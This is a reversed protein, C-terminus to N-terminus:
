LRRLRKVPLGQADACGYQCQECTATEVGPESLTWQIVAEQWSAAYAPHADLFYRDNKLQERCLQTCFELHVVARRNEAAVIVPCRIKDNM